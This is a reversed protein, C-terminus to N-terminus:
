FDDEEGERETCRGTIHQHGFLDVMCWLDFKEQEMLNKVKSKRM